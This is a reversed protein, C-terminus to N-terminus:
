KHSKVHIAKKIDEVARNVANCVARSSITAGTISEIDGGEKDVKVPSQKGDFQAQFWSRLNTEDPSTGAIITGWTKKSLIEEVKDGLGPTEKQYLVKVGKIEFSNDVGVMVELVSSYGSAHGTAVYGITEGGKKAVRYQFDHDDMKANKVEFVDADPM